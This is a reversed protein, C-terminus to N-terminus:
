LAHRSGQNSHAGTIRALVDRLFAQIEALVDTLIYAYYFM